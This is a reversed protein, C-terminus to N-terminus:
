NLSKNELDNQIVKWKIALLLCLCVARDLLIWILDSWSFYVKSYAPVWFWYSFWCKTDGIKPASTCFTYSGSKSSTEESFTYDCSRWSFWFSLFQNLGSYTSSAPNLLYTSFTWHRWNPRCLFYRRFLLTYTRLFQITQFSNPHWYRM